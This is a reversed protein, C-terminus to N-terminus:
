KSLNTKPKLNGWELFLRRLPDSIVASLIISVITLSAASWIDSLGLDVPIVIAVLAVPLFLMTMALAQTGPGSIRGDKYRRAAKLTLSAVPAWIVGGFLIAPLPVLLLDFGEENISLGAIWYIMSAFLALAFGTLLIREHRVIEWFVWGYPLALGVLIVSFTVFQWGYEDGIFLLLAMLSFASYWIQYSRFTLREPPALLQIVPLVTVAVTITISTALNDFIDLPWAMAYVPICVGLITVALVWFRERLAQYATKVIRTTNKALNAIPPMTPSHSTATQERRLNHPQAPKTKQSTLVTTKSFHINRGANIPALQRVNRSGDEITTNGGDGEAREARHSVM